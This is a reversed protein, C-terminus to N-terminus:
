TTNPHFPRLSQKAPYQHAASLAPMFRPFKAGCHHSIDPLCVIFLGVYDDPQPQGPLGTIRYPASRVSPMRWFREHKKRLTGGAYSTVCLSCRILAVKRVISGIFPRVHLRTNCTKANRFHGSLRKEVRIKPSQCNDFIGHLHHVWILRAYSNLTQM